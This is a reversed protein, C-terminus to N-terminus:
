LTKRAMKRAGPRTLPLVSGREAGQFQDRNPHDLWTLCCDKIFAAVVDQQLRYERVADLVKKPENLGQKQWDLYGEVLWALIGEGEEKVLTRALNKIRREPPFFVEFPILRIRSWIGEDRGKIDPKHNAPIWVKFTVEFDFFDRRMYRASITPDGTLRKVLAEALEEGEDVEDTVVLRCGFLKALGTPHENKGTRLFIRPDSVTAYDHLVKRVPDLVTNKGNRGM